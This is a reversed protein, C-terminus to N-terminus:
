LTSAQGDFLSKMVESYRSSTPQSKISAVFDAGVLDDVIHEEYKLGDLDWEINVRKGIYLMESEPHMYGPLENVWGGHDPRAVILLAAHSRILPLEHAYMAVSQVDGVHRRELTFNPEIALVFAGADKLAKALHMEGAGVDIVIM